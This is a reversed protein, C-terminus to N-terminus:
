GAVARGTGLQAVRDADSNRNTLSCTVVLRRRRM